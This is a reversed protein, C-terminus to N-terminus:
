PLSPLQGWAHWMLQLLPPHIVPPVPVLLKGRMEPTALTAAPPCAAPVSVWAAACWSSAAKWHERACCGSLVVAVTFAAPPFTQLATASLKNVQACCPQLLAAAAPAEEGHQYCPMPTLSECSGQM